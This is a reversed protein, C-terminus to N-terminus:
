VTNGSGHARWALRFRTGPTGAFLWRSPKRPRRPLLVIVDNPHGANLVALAREELLDKDIHEAELMAVRKM